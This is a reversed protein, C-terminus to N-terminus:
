GKQNATEEDTRDPCDCIRELFVTMHSTLSALQKNCM